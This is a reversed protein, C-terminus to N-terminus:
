SVKVELLVLFQRLGQPNTLQSASRKLSAALMESGNILANM